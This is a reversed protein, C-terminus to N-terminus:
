IIESRIRADGMKQAVSSPPTHTGDSETLIKTVTEGIRCVSEAVHEVDFPRNERHATWEEAVAILGGANAVYDPVYAINRAHIRHSDIIENELQNNAAGVILACSLVPITRANLIGGFACPCFVEIRPDSYIDNQNELIVLREFWPALVESAHLLRAENTETGIVSAGIGLLTVALYLGVHGGIGQIGFCLDSIEGGEYVFPLAAKISEYVGVATYKSPDGSGGKSKELGVVFQHATRPDGSKKALSTIEDAIIEMDAVNTGSDEATIYNGGLQYLGRAFARLLGETKQTDPNGVIVAKGGGLPLDALAAKYTMGRSLRLADSLPECESMRLGGLAPGRRTSHIAIIANLGTKKDSVFFVGEHGKFEPHRFIDM